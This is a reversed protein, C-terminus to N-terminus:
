EGTIFAGKDILEDCASQLGSREKKTQPRAGALRGVDYVREVLRDIRGEGIGLHLRPEGVGGAADQGARGGLEALEEGLLRLLPRLHDFCGAGLRVLRAASDVRGGSRRAAQLRLETRTM